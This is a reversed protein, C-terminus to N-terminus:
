ASSPMRSIWEHSSNLRTSKRDLSATVFGRVFSSEDVGSAFRRQLSSGVSELGDEIHLLEGAIGGAVLAVLPIVMNHTKLVDSLGIGITVLGISQVVLEKM